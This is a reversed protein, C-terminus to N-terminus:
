FFFFGGALLLSIIFESIKYEAQIIVETAISSHNVHVAYYPEENGELRSAGKRLLTM